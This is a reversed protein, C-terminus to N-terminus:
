MTLQIADAESPAMGSSTVWLPRGHRFCYNTARHRLRSQITSRRHRTMKRYTAIKEDVVHYIMTTMEVKWDDKTTRSKALSHNSRM